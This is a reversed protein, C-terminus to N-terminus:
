RSPPNLTVVRAGALTERLFTGCCWATTIPWGCRLILVLEALDNELLSV